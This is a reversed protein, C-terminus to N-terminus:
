RPPAPPRMGSRWPSPATRRRGTACCDEAAAATEMLREANIQVKAWRGLLLDVVAAVDEVSFDDVIM